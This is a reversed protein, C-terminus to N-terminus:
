ETLSFFQYDRYIKQENTIVSVRLAYLGPDLGALDIAALTWRGNSLDSASTISRWEQPYFGDGIAVQVLSIEEPIQLAAKVELAANGITKQSISQFSGPEYIDIEASLDGSVTDFEKPIMEIQHDIAWDEAEKPINMYTSNRVNRFPTLATALRFSLQNVPLSIYLDDRELPENGSLFVESVTEPCVGNYLKGSPSCVMLQTVDEPRNWGNIPQDKVAAEMITQWLITAARRTMDATEVADDLAGVWVITLIEPTFGALWFDGSKMTQGTKTGAPRNFFRNAQADEALTHVMLFALKQDLLSVSAREQVPQEGAGPSEITLITKPRPIDTYVTGTLRGQNAFPLFANALVDAPMAAGSFIASEPTKANLATLGFQQAQNWVPATGINRLLEAAPGMMDQNLATRLRVPGNFNNAPSQYGAPLYYTQEALDWVMTSPSMGRNFASLAVFPLLLSGPDHPTFSRNAARDGSLSSGIDISAIMQGSKVELVAVSLPSTQLTQRLEQQMADSLTESQYFPCADIPDIEESATEDAEATETKPVESQMGTLCELLMQLDFDITSRIKHGGREIAEQGILEYASLLAKQLGPNPQIEAQLIPPEFIIFNRSLVEQLETENLTGNASLKEVEALYSERMAGKSDIPNLAPANLIASILISEALDLEAASKDLYTLAAADAGFALQGFYASNLYWKLIQEHGYKELIQSAVIQTLVRSYFGSGLDEKYVTQVLSEAITPPADETVAHWSGASNWYDPERSGVVVRVLEDSFRSGANAEIELQQAPMSPYNLSLLLQSGSRDYIQTPELRTEFHQDFHDISPLNQSILAYAAAAFFLFIVALVMFSFFLGRMSLIFREFRSDKSQKARKRRWSIIKSPKM